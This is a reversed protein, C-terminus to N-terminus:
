GTRRYKERILPSMKLLSSHLSAIRAEGQMRWLSLYLKIDYFNYNSRVGLRSLFYGRIIFYM